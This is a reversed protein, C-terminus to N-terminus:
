RYIWGKEYLNKLKTGDYYAFGLPYHDACVLVFGKKIDWEGDAEPIVTEGKLYKIVMPDNIGLDITNTYDDPDLTLAFATHPTFKGARNLSGMCTGTRVYRINRRYISEFGEPLMYIMGDKSCIFEREEMRESLGASFFRRIDDAQHPFSSFVKNDDLSEQEPCQGTEKKMLAVFHGEGRFRHPFAHVCNKLSDEESYKAYPGCLGHDKDIHCASMDNHSSLFSLIVQEDEIDSFTCTSYLVMGGPRLMKYASDLLSEQIPSYYEPGRKDYSLILGPDKRFMGEGSCPADVLIKDFTEPYIVSLRKPDECMVCHDSMGFMDLNKVLPITRSFSIDNSILMRIGSISLQTSKGGPAACLDLVIDEPDTPLLEAPLMASAEQIYYLGAYYYPHKSWADTDNIYYGNSIYPIKEIRFPAKKEFAEPTIKSTNIRIASISKNDYSRIFDDYESGLLDKMSDKFRDPLGM